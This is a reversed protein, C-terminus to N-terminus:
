FILPDNFGPGRWNSFQEQYQGLIEDLELQSIGITVGLHFDPLESVDFRAIQTFELLPQCIV